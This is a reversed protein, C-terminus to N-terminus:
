HTTRKVATALGLEVETGVFARYVFNRGSFSPVYAFMSLFGFITPAAMRQWGASVHGYPVLESTGICRVAVGERSTSAAAKPKWKPM